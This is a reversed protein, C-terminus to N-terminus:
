TQCALLFGIADFELIRAGHVEAPTLKINQM